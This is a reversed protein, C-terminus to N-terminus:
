RYNKSLKGAKTLIGEKVLQARAAAPSATVRKTFKRAAKRFDSSFTPSRPDLVSKAVALKPM